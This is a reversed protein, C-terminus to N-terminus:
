PGPREAPPEEAPALPETPRVSTEASPPAAAPSRPGVVLSIQARSLLAGAALLLAGALAIWIGAEPSGGRAGPPDNVLSVVVIVLAIGALAPLLGNPVLGVAAPEGPRRLPLVSAIAALGLVALVIDLAEFVTWASEGPYWDLFLSVILVLGGIAALVGGADLRHPM